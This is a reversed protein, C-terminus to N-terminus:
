CMFHPHERHCNFKAASPIHGAIITLSVDGHRATVMVYENTIHAAIQQRVFSVDKKMAMLARSLGRIIESFLLEYRSFRINCDM